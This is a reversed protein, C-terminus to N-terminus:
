LDSPARELVSRASSSILLSMRTTLSSCHGPTAPSDGLLEEHAMKKSQKGPRFGPSRSSPNPYASNPVRLSYVVLLHDTVLSRPSLINLLFWSAPLTPNRFLCHEHRFSERSGEPGPAKKSAHEAPFSPAESPHTRSRNHCGKTRM